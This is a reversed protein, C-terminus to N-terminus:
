GNRHGADVANAKNLEPDHIAPPWDRIGNLENAEHQSLRGLLASVESVAQVFRFINHSIETASDEFAMRSLGIINGTRLEAQKRKM